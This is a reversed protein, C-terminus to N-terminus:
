AGTLIRDQNYVSGRSNQRTCSPYYMGMSVIQNETQIENLFTILEACHTLM